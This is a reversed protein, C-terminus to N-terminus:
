KVVDTIKFFSLPTEIQSLSKDPSAGAARHTWAPRRLIRWLSLEGDTSAWRGCGPICHRMVVLFSFTSVNSSNLFLQFSAWKGCGPWPWYNNMVIWSSLTIKFTSGHYSFLMINMGTWNSFSLSLSSTFAPTNSYREGCSLHNKLGQSCRPIVMMIWIQCLSKNPGLHELLWSLRLPIWYM